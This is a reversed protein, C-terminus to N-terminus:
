LRHALPMWVFGLCSSSFSSTALSWQLVTAHYFQIKLQTAALTLLTLVLSSVM